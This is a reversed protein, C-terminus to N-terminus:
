KRKRQLQFELSNVQINKPASEINKDTMIIPATEKKALDNLNQVDIAVRSRKKGERELVAIIEDFFEM